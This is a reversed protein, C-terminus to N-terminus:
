NALRVIHTQGDLVPVVVNIVDEFDLQKKIVNEFYSAIDAKQRDSNGPVLVYHVLLTKNGLKEKENTKM